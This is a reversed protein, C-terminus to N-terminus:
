RDRHEYTNQNPYEHQKNYSFEYLLFNYTSFLYQVTIICHRKPRFEVFGLYSSCFYRLIYYICKQFCLCYLSIKFFCSFPSMNCIPFLFTFSPSSRKAFFLPWPRVYGFWQLSLAILLEMGLSFYMEFIITFSFVSNIALCDVCPITFSIRWNFSFSM